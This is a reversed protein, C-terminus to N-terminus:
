KESEILTSRKRMKNMELFFISSFRQRKRTRLIKQKQSFKEWREPLNRWQNIQNKKTRRKQTKNQAAKKNKKNAITTTTPKRKFGVFVEWNFCIMPFRDALLAAQFAAIFWAIIESMSITGRNPSRDYLFFSSGHCSSGPRGPSVYHSSSNSPCFVFYPFTRKTSFNQNSAFM